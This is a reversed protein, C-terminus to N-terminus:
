RALDTYHTFPWKAPPFFPFLYPIFYLVTAIPTSFVLLVFYFVRLSFLVNLIEEDAKQPYM